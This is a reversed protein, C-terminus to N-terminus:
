RFNSFATTKRNGLLARGLTRGEARSGMRREGREPEAQWITGIKAVGPLARTAGLVRAKKNSSNTRRRKFIKRECSSGGKKAFVKNRDRGGDRGSV